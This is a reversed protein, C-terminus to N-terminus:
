NNRYKPMSCELSSVLSQLVAESGPGSPCIYTTRVDISMFSSKLVLLLSALLIIKGEKKGDSSYNGWGIPIKSNYYLSVFM